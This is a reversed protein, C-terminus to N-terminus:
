GSLGLSEKTKRNMLERHKIAYQLAVEKDGKGWKAVSFSKTKRKGNEDVWVAKWRKKTGEEHWEVGPYGSTNNKQISKNNANVRGKGERINYNLNNLGNRDIHDVEEFDKYLINHIFKHNNGSGARAYVTKDKPANWGRIRSNLSTLQDLQDIEFRMIHDSYHQKEEFKKIKMEFFEYGEQIKPHKIVKVRRIMNNKEGIINSKCEQHTKVDKMLKSLNVNEGEKYHEHKFTKNHISNQKFEICVRNDYKKINGHLIGGYWQGYEYIEEDDIILNNNDDFHLEPLTISCDKCPGFKARLFNSTHIDFEKNCNKCEIIIHRQKKSEQKYKYIKLERCKTKCKEVVGKSIGKKSCESCGIFSKMMNQKMKKDDKGCKCTFTIYRPDEDYIKWNSCGADDIIENIKDITRQQIKM